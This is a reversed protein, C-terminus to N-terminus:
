SACPLEAVLTTGTGADSDVRFTGGAAVVRDALGTLGSGGTAAAGGVGDDAVRVVLHGNRRVATLSATTARAHKVVNTLGECAIFYAAAEVGPAVREELADVEVPVPSRAALERLAAALGSDLQSPPLGQALERLEDIVATIQVVADDLTRDVQERPSSELEFQAHRLALGVSVLRQQAGDHLDREIRRREEHGAAVIRARSDEVQKLQRRLEVRLRAIEVALGGAAVVDAVAAPNAHRAPDCLVVGMPEIPVRLRHDDDPSAREVGLTDVYRGTEPVLFRLEVQPDDLVERLVPEISEPMARGARLDELFAAIRRLAHARAPDFRRDVASQLRTRLPRFAAAAVLTSAATVWASGRDLATGLLLSTAAYAGALLLTLSTYVVTRNVVLDIDYLRYRLIGVGAAVPLALLALAIVVGAVPTVYYLSFGAPLVVAAVAAAFAFWKLQQREIGRARRLRLVLSVASAILAGLFLTMGVATLANTPLGDVALPNHGSAFEGDRDATLSWGAIACLMGVGGAWAVARWRRGLFRGDPFLLFTLTWGLGSPLWSWTAFWEGAAGGPWGEVAARLGWGQAVDGLVNLLAFGCFLWGIPNEPHRSAILAGTGCVTLAWVAYLWTDYAPELGASLAVAVVDALLTLGLLACPLPDLRRRM